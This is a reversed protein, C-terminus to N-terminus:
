AGELATIRAELEKITAVLLPMLKSQDIGQYVPSGDDDVENHTGTIAEPVVSQVEHALFGDVITDADAIFNFRKPELQKLRDTAGTLDAVNEKLRHDSSTAYSTSSSTVGISGVPNGGQYIGILEGTNTRRELLMTSGGSTSADIRGDSKLGIGGNGIITGNTTGVLLHGNSLRMRESSATFIRLSDDSHVYQLLGRYDNASGDGANDTFALSSTASSGGVITIGHGTSASSNSGVVLSRAGGGTYNSPTSNFIGVRGSSDIRMRETDATLLRIPVSTVANFDFKTSEAVISGTRTGNVELDIIPTTPANLTISRHDASYNNPTCNVGVNGSSDIRMREASSSGGNRV